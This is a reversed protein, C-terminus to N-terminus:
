GDCGPCRCRTDTRSAAHTGWTFTRNHMRNHSTCMTCWNKCIPPAHWAPTVTPCMLDECIDHMGTQACNWDTQSCLQLPVDVKFCTAKDERVMGERQHFTSCHVGKVTQQPCMSFPPDEARILRLRQPLAMPMVAQPGLLLMQQSDLITAIEM